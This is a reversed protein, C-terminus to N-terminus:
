SVALEELNKVTTTCLDDLPLDNSDGGFPDEIQNGIEEIGLLIFSILAVIPTTWWGLDHVLQLPLVFCYILLLRKLYIAYAIPMPTKLIRECGIMAEVMNDVSTNMSILEDMRLRDGIQQQKLYDGIWVAIKLPKNKAEKLESYQSQNLLRELESNVGNNRLHLKTAVAFAALLRLAATKNQTDVAETEAVLSRIKRGLNLINVIMGGWSKRGEWYRDYATNTRFVLLLGLVLNYAVNSTVDAFIDEPLSYGFYHSLSILFALGSFLLVRPFVTPVVSGQVQFAVKFWKANDATM